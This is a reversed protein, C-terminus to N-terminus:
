LQPARSQEVSAVSFNAPLLALEDVPLQVKLAYFRGKERPLHHGWRVMDNL